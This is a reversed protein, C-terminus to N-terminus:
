NERSIFEVALPEGPLCLVASTDIIIDNPKPANPGPLVKYNLMLSSLAFRSTMLGFRKGTFM